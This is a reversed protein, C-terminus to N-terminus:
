AMNRISIYYHDFVFVLLNKREKKNKRRNIEKFQTNEENVNGVSDWFDGMGEWGSEKGGGWVCVSGCRPGPMGRYQPM